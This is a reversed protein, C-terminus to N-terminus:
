YKYNGLDIISLHPNYHGMQTGYYDVNFKRGKLKTIVVDHSEGTLESERRSTLLDSPNEFFGEEPFDFSGTLYESGSPGAYKSCDESTAHLHFRALHPIHVFHGRRWSYAKVKNHISSVKVLDLFGEVFRLYGGVEEAEGVLTNEDILEGVRNVFKKNRLTDLMIKVRLLQLPKARYIDSPRGEEMGTRYSHELKGLVKELDGREDQLSNIDEVSYTRSLNKALDFLNQIPYPQKLDFMSCEACPEPSSFHITVGNSLYNQTKSWLRLLREKLAEEQSQRKPERREKFSRIIGM